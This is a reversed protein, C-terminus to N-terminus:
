SLRPWPAMKRWRVFFLAIGLIFVPITLLQGRTFYVFGLDFGAATEVRLYEISFRLIGYFILFLAAASGSRPTRQMDSTEPEQNRTGRLHLFCMGAIFLNKLAAYIPTPHRLGEVGPIAM